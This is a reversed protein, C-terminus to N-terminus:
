DADLFESEELWEDDPYYIWLASGNKIADILKRSIKPRVVPCGWSRGVLQDDARKKTVYPAGHIVILRERANDNVGEELGDIRLTYGHGGTYTEATVFLGLCSKKSGQANSFDKAAEMDGGSGRPSGMGHAVIEEFLVTLTKMDIVWLREQYSPLSYDIVTLRERAFCGEELGDTYASLALELVDPRLNRTQAVLREVLGPPDAGDAGPPSLWVVAFVLASVLLRKMM